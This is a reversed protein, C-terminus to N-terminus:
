TNLRISPPSCLTMTYKAIFDTKDTRNLVEYLSLDMSWGKWEVFADADDPNGPNSHGDSALLIKDIDTPLEQDIIFPEVDNFLKM